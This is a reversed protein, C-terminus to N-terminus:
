EPTLLAGCKPCSAADESVTEGCKPCSYANKAQNGCKRCFIDDEALKEGCASCKPSRDVKLGCKRCYIDEETLGAGCRVCSKSPEHLSKPLPPLRELQSEKAMPKPEIPGISDAGGDLARKARLALRLAGTYDEKQFMEDAQKLNEEAVNNKGKAGSQELIDRVSCIMFKSELYNKPLKRAEQFPVECKEEGGKSGVKAVISSVPDSGDEKASKLLEKAKNISELAYLHNGRQFAAEAEIILLNAEKSVRGRSKLAEAVAKTTMISNYADDQTIKSDLRERKKSRFYRLELFVVIALIIGLVALIILDVDSLGVM